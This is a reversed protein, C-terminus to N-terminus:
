ARAQNSLMTAQMPARRSAGPAPLLTPVCNKVCLIVLVGKRIESMGQSPRLRALHGKVDDVTRALRFEAFPDLSGLLPLQPYMGAMLLWM